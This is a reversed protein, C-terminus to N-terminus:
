KQKDFHVIIWVVFGAAAAGGILIAAKIPVSDFCDMSHVILVTAIVLWFSKIAAIRAM